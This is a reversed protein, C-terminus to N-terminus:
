KKKQRIGEDIKERPSLSDVDIGGGSTRGSFPKLPPTGLEKDKKPWLAEAVKVIQEATTAGFTECLEKLKVPDGGEYKTATEWIFVERLTDKALKVEEGHAQKDAELSTTDTKLKRERERLDTDRKIIDFKKPDDSTLDDIETKLKEREAVIEELETNKVKLQAKVSDREVEMEKRERGADMRALQALREAEDITLTKPEEKPSPEEKGPTPETAKPTADELKQTTDQETKTKDTTM